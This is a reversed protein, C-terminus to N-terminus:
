NYDAQIEGTPYPIDTEYETPAGMVPYGNKDFSVKQLNLYRPAYTACPNTRKLGHYTCWLESGDPSYFSSCVNDFIQEHTIDKYDKHEEQRITIKHNMM